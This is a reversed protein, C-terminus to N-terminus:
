QFLPALVLTVTALVKVLAQLSPAAMAELPVGVTDCVISAGLRSNNAPNPTDDVSYKLRPAFGRYFIAWVSAAGEATFALVMGAAGAGTVGIGVLDLATALGYKASYAHLTLEIVLAVGLGLLGVPLAQRLADHVVMSHCSAHEPDYGEDFHVSDGEYRPAGSALHSRVDRIVPEGARIVAGIARAAFWGVAAAAVLLAIGTEIPGLGAKPAPSRLLEFWALSCTVFVALASQASVLFGSSRAAASIDALRSAREAGEPGPSHILALSAAAYSSAGTARVSVAYAAPGIMAGAACALGFAGGGPLGIRTGFFWAAVLPACAAILVLVGREAGRALGSLLLAGAGLQATQDNASQSSRERRAALRVAASSLGVSLLGSACAGFAGLWWTDLVWRTCALQGAAALAMTALMGRDFAREPRERADWRVVLLGVGSALLGFAAILPVIMVVGLSAGLRPANARWFGASVMMAGVLTGAISASADIAPGSGELLTQAAQRALWAPNKPHEAPLPQAGLTAGLRAAGAFVGSLVRATWGGLAAGLGFGILLVVLQFPVEPGPRASFGGLRWWAAVALSSLAAVPLAAAALGSVAAARLAAPLIQPTTTRTPSALRACASLAARSSIALNAASLLAGLLFSGVVWAALEPSSAVPDAPHRPRAFAYAVFLVFGALLALIFLVRAHNRTFASVAVFITDSSEKLSRPPAAAAPGSRALVVALVVALLCLTLTLGFETM